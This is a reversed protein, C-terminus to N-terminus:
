TRELSNLFNFLNRMEAKDV